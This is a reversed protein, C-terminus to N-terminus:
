DGGDKVIWRYFMSKATTGNKRQVERAEFEIEKREILTTLAESFKTSSLNTMRLADSRTVWEGNNKKIYERVRALEKGMDAFEILEMVTNLSKKLIKWSKEVYQKQVLLRYESNTSNTLNTSNTTNTCNTISVIKEGNYYCNVLKVLTVLEVLKSISTMKMEKNLIKEYFIGLAESVLLIDAFTLVYDLIRARSGSVRNYKADGSEVEVVENYYKLAEDDLEFVCGDKECNVIWEYETKLVQLFVNVREKLRRRPEPHPEGYVQLIRAVYGGNAMESTLNQKVVEPTCTTHMCFYPKEITWERKKGAEKTLRKTYRQCNFLNNKIEAMESLYGEKKIGKLEESWEGMLQVGSQIESLAELLAQPSGAKPLMCLYPVIKEWLLKQVTNKRSISTPGLLNMYSNHYLDYPTIRHVVGSGLAFGMIQIATAEAYEIPADSSERVYIKAIDVFSYKSM